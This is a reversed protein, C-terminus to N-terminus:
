CLDPLSARRDVRRKMEKFADRFEEYTERVSEVLEPSPPPLIEVAVEGDKGSLVALSGDMLGMSSAMESPIEVIWGLDSKQATLVGTM